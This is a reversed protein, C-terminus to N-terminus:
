MEGPSTIHKEVVQVSADMSMAGYKRSSAHSAASAASIPSNASPLFVSRSSAESHLTPQASQAVLSICGSLVATSDLNVQLFSSWYKLSSQFLVLVAQKALHLDPFLAACTSEQLLASLLQWTRAWSSLAWSVMRTTHSRQDLTASKLLDSKIALLTCM